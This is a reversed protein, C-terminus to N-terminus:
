RCRKKFVQWPPDTATSKSFIARRPGWRCRVRIILPCCSCLEPLNLSTRSPSHQKSRNYPPYKEPLQFLIKRNYIKKFRVLKFKLFLGSSAKTTSQAQPPCHFRIIWNRATNMWAVSIDPNSNATNKLPHKSGRRRASQISCCNCIRALTLLTLEECQRTRPVIPCPYFKCFSIM